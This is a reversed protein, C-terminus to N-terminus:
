IVGSQDLILLWYLIPIQSPITYPQGNILFIDLHAHHHFDVRENNNCENYSVNSVSRIKLVRYYKMNGM